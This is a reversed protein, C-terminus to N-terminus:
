KRRKAAKKAFATVCHCDNHRRLFLSFIATPPNKQGAPAQARCFRVRKDREMFPSPRHQMAFGLKLEVVHAIFRQEDDGAMGIIM